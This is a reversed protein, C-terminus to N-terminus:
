FNATYLKWLAQRRHDPFCVVLSEFLLLLQIVHYQAPPAEILTTYADVNPDLANLM